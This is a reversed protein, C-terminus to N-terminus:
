FIGQHANDQRCLLLRSTSQHLGIYRNTITKERKEESKKVYKGSSIRGDSPKKADDPIQWFRGAKRVGNIKGSKCLASVTRESLGWEAAIQKCDKM